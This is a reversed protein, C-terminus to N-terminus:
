LGVRHRERPRVVHSAPLACLEDATAWRPLRPRAPGFSIDKMALNRAAWLDRPVVRVPRGEFDTYGIEGPAGALRDICPLGKLRGFRGSRSKKGIADLDDVLAEIRKVDGLGVVFVRRASVAEYRDRTPKRRERAVVKELTKGRRGALGGYDFREWRPNMVYWVQRRVVPGLFLLESAQYVGDTEALPLSLHATEVDGTRRCTEHALLGDFSVSRNVLVPEALEFTIRFPEVSAGAGLDVDTLGGDRPCPPGYHDIAEFTM